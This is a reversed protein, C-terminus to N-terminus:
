IHDTPNTEVRGDDANDVPDEKLAKFLYRIDFIGGIIVVITFILCAFTNILTYWFTAVSWFGIEPSFEIM